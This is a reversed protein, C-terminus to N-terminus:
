AAILWRISAVCDCPDGTGTPPPLGAACLRAAAARGVGLAGFLNGPPLDETSGTRRGANGAACGLAFSSNCLLRADLPAAHSTV